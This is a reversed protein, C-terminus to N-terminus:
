LRREEWVQFKMMLADPEQFIDSGLCDEYPATQKPIAQWCFLRLSREIKM